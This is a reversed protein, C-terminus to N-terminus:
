FPLQLGLAFCVFLSFFASERAAAALFSRLPVRYCGGPVGAAYMQTTHHRM